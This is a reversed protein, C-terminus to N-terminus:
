TEEETLFKQAVLNFADLIKTLDEVDTMRVGSTIWKLILHTEFSTSGERHRGLSESIVSIISYQEYNWLVDIGGERLLYSKLSDLFARVAWPESNLIREFFKKNFTLIKTNPATKHKKLTYPVGM